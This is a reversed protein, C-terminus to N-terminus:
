LFSVFISKFVPKRLRPTGIRLLCMQQAAPANRGATDLNDMIRVPVAPGLLQEGEHFKRQVYEQLSEGATLVGYKWVSITFTKGESFMRLSELSIELPYSTSLQSLPVFLDVSAITDRSHSSATAHAENKLRQIDEKCRRIEDKLLVLQTCSSCSSCTM